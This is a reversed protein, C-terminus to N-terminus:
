GPIMILTYRADKEVSERDLVFPRYKGTRWLETQDDYHPSMFNGSIGTPIVRLSNKMNSFDIIYRLSAGHLGEWPNSLRYPQPNVTAFDRQFRGSILHPIVVKMTLTHLQGWKWDDVKDGMQGELYIVAKKFSKVIIERIGEVEPTDPDDFWPSQGRFMLNRMANFVVFSKGIYNGYLEDGLRKKFTNKVMENIVAHFVTPATGATNAVFDWDNLTSLAKKEKESLKEDSLSKLMIPVWEKALVVYFDAQIKEFDKVDLKEKATIMEQIRVFRDPMVYYHSIPYPYDDGVIKNNATAIWGTTPNRMHPQEATPVYGKWEHKGDWGPVPIAGSFGDRIPIGVAAWFGINGKDDAYVWNQGPCKFHEVAKEIDDISGATNLDLFPNAQLMDYATWRMSLSTGKSEKLKNLDDIIPGHRTLKVPHKEDQAGKIKIIEYKITMDEWRGRYEYQDPNDPNIKEIYFDADDAMVNTWGWAVHENAGIIIFPIGPLISGSVNMSPTVLHAEYWIGPASHGLHPDNAFIPMGTASKEASVVWSNSAGGGETGLIKRALNLTKLLDLSAMGEPVIVPYGEAYDPFIDRAMKEGVKDIVAAFLMEVYFATNLDWAMYYNVAMGDSPQWPEPTYGLLTFEIPLAGKHNDIFYNVGEAYAEWVSVTEHPYAAAIDEVSNGATITRFFKDLPVLDQGLIEALRGRAARRVIDMQFLRDQAMCYGLAFRADKDTQAYIHPMGYSDRIIEVKDNLGPITMKGNYDPLTSQLYGYIGLFVVIILGFLISLVWKLVRV